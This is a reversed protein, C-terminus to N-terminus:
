ESVGFFERVSRIVHQIQEERLAPHLPLSLVTECAKESVPFDGPRGGLFAYALQLHIPVPYHVLADIRRSQLHERLRDRRDTRVPYLHRAPVAAADTELPTLPLDAFAADYRAAIERRRSNEPELSFLKVRLIAAQLEDLRSNRGEEESYDRRKWGYQRLRKLRDALAPDNTAVAGGDGFAGLNKTPYFSFSAAKGFSGAKRGKWEAGHSQACDELLILKKESAIRALADVDAIGGYLHVALLFRTAPTVARAVSEPDLTLSRPEVDSLRPIAGALRV